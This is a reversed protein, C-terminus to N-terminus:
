TPASRLRLDLVIILGGGSGGLALSADASQQVMPHLVISSDADGILPGQKEPTQGGLAYKQNLLGPVLKKSLPLKAVMIVPRKDSFANVQGIFQLTGQYTEDPADLGARFQCVVERGEGPLNGVSPASDSLALSCTLFGYAFFAEWAIFLRRCAHAMFVCRTPPARPELPLTFV